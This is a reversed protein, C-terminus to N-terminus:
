REEFKLNFLELLWSGGSQRIQRGTNDCVERKGHQM